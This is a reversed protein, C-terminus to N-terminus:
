LKLKQSLNLLLEKYNYLYINVMVKQTLSSITSLLIVFYFFLIGTYVYKITQM